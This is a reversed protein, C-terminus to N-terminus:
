LPEGIAFVECAEVGEGLSRANNYPPAGGPGGKGFFSKGL